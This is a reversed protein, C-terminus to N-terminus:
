FESEICNRYRAATNHSATGLTRRGLLSLAFCLTVLSSDKGVDAIPQLFIVFNIM